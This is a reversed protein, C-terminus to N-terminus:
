FMSKHYRVKSIVQGKDNTKIFTIYGYDEINCDYGDLKYSVLLKITQYKVNIANLLLQWINVEYMRNNVKYKM